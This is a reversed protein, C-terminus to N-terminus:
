IRLTADELRETAPSAVSPPPAVFQCRVRKFLTPASPDSPDALAGQLMERGRQMAELNRVARCGECMCDPVLSLGTTSDVECTRMTVCERNQSAGPALTEYQLATCERLALCKRDSTPTPAM